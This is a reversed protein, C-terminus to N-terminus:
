LHKVKSYRHEDFVPLCTNEESLCQDSLCTNNCPEELPICDSGCDKKDKQDFCFGAIPVPVKKEEELITKSLIIKLFICNQFNLEKKYNRPKWLPLLSNM